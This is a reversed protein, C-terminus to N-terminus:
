TGAVLKHGCRLKCRGFVGHKALLTLKDLVAERLKEKHVCAMAKRLTYTTEDRARGPDKNSPTAAVIGSHM